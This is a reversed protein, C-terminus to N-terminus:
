SRWNILYKELKNVISAYIMSSFETNEPIHRKWFIIESNKVSWGFDKEPIPHYYYPKTM